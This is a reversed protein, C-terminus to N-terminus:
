NQLRGKIKWLATQNLMVPENKPKAVSNSFVSYLCHKNETLPKLSDFRVCTQSKMLSFGFSFLVFTCVGLNRRNKKGWTARTDLYNCTRPLHIELALWKNLKLSDSVLVNCFKM